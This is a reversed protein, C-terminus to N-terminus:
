SFEIAVHHDKHRMCIDVRNATAHYLITKEMREPTYHEGFWSVMFTEFPLIKEWVHKDLLSWGEFQCTNRHRNNPLKAKKVNGVFEEM